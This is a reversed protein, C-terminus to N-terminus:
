SRSTVLAGSRTAKAARSGARLVLGAIVAFIVASVLGVVHLGATFAAGSAAGDALNM